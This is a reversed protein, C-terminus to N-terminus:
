KHGLLAAVAPELYAAAAAYGAANPHGQSDGSALEPRNALVRGAMVVRAKGGAAGAVPVGHIGVLIVKVGRAALRDVMTRLTPVVGAKDADTFHHASCTPCYENVGFEILAIRTDSPVAQDLRALGGAASDGDIGANDVVVNYGKAKLLRELVAPYSQDRSVGHGNTFSTGIAVIRTQALTPAAGILTMLLPLAIGFLRIRKGMNVRWKPLQHACHKNTSGGFTATEAAASVRWGVNGKYLGTQSSIQRPNYTKVLGHSRLWGPAAAGGVLTIFERWNM